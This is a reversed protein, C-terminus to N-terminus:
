IYPEKALLFPDLALSKLITTRSQSGVRSNLMKRLALFRHTTRKLLFTRMTSHLPRLISTPFQSLQADTYLAYFYRLLSARVMDQINSNTTQSLPEPSRFTNRSIQLIQVLDSLSLIHPNPAHNSTQALAQVIAENNDFYTEPDLLSLHLISELYRIAWYPMEGDNVLKKLIVQDEGADNQLLEQALEQLLIRSEESQISLKAYVQGKLSPKQHPPPDHSDLFEKVIRTVALQPEDEISTM